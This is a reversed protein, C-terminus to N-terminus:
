ALILGDHAKIEHRIQGNGADWITLTGERGGGAIAREHPCFGLSITQEGPVDLDVMKTGARLDWLSVARDSRSLALFRSNMATRFIQQSTDFTNLRQQTDVSWRTFLGDRSYGVVYKGDDSLDAVFDQFADPRDVELLVKQTQTDWVQYVSGKNPERDANIKILLRRGDVSCKVVHDRPLHDQFPYTQDEAIKWLRATGDSSGTVIAEGDPSFAASRVEREHGIFTQKLKGTSADWVRATRDDSGTVILNGDPSFAVARVESEHGNLALQQEGSALDWVFVKSDVGSSVLRKDGPSIAIGHVPGDHGRFEQLLQQTETDWLRTVGDRHAAILSGDSLFEVDYASSSNEITAQKEGTSADCCVIRGNYCAAAIRKGERDFQAAWVPSELPLSLLQEGTSPDVVRIGGHGLYFDAIAILIRKGSPDFVADSTEAIPADFLHVLSGNKADWLCAKREQNATLIWTGDPSFSAARNRGQHDTLCLTEGRIVRNLYNWEWGRLEKPAGDLLRRVSLVNGRQLEFQVMRMSAAYDSHAQKKRNAVIQALREEALRSSEIASQENNQAEEQLLKAMEAADRSSIAWTVSMAAVVILATALVAVTVIASRHKQCAKRLRYSITPPCADVPENALYRQLDLALASAGEYRRTRDKELCRMVIWDLEGQVETSLRAPDTRRAAAVKQLTASTRIRMSPLAPDQEKIRLIMEAYATAQLTQRDLPPTGTLLEYLLAGLSYVDSRTDVGFANMEAQEPSVYELTGVMTGYQTYVTKETLRQDLAKSVGFDIVKPVARDDYM